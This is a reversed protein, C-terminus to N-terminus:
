IFTVQWCVILAVQRQLQASSSRICEKCQTKGADQHFVNYVLMFFYIRYARVCVCVYIYKRAHTRAHM